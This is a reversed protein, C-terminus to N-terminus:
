CKVLYKEDWVGGSNSEDGYERDVITAVVGTVKVGFQAAHHAWATRDYDGSSSPFLAVKVRKVRNEVLDITGAGVLRGDCGRVGSFRGGEVGGSLWVKFGPVTTQAM